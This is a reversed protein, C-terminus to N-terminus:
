GVSEIPLKGSTPPEEWRIKVQVPETYPKILQDVTRKEGSPLEIPAHIAKDLRWSIAFFPHEVFGPAMNIVAESLNATIGPNGILTDAMTNERIPTNALVESDLVKRGMAGRVSPFSFWSNVRHYDRGVPACIIYPLDAIAGLAVLWDKLRINDQRRIRGDFVFFPRGM